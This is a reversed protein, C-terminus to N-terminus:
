EFRCTIQGGISHSVCFLSMQMNNYQLRIDKASGRKKFMKRAVNRQSGRKKEERM